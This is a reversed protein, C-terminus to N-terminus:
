GGAYEIGPLAEPGDTMAALTHGSLTQPAPQGPAPAAQQQPPHDRLLAHRVAGEYHHLRTALRFYRPSDLSMPDDVRHLVSLDSEVEAAYDLLWM